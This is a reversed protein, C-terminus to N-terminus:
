FTLLPWLMSMDTPSKRGRIKDVQGWEYFPIPPICYFNLFFVFFFCPPFSIQRMINQPGKNPIWKYILNCGLFTWRVLSWLHCTKAKPSFWTGPLFLGRSPACHRTRNEVSHMLSMMVPCFLLQPFYLLYLISVREMNREAPHVCRTRLTWGPRTQLKGHSEQHSTAIYASADDGM